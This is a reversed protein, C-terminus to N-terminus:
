WLFLRAIRISPGFKLSTAGYYPVERVRPDLDDLYLHALPYRATDHHRKACTVGGREEETCSCHIERRIPWDRQEKPDFTEYLELQAPSFMSLPALYVQVGDAVIFLAHPVPVVFTKTPVLSEMAAIKM